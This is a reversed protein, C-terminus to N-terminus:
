KVIALVDKEHVIIYKTDDAEYETGIHKNYLVVDGAHLETVSNGIAIVEGHFQTEKCSDPIIIGSVTKEETPQPLILVRDGLPKIIKM